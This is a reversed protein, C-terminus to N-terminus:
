GSHHLSFAHGIHVTPIAEHTGHAVAWRIDMRPGEVEVTALMNDFWPGDSISWTFPPAPVKARRSLFTALAVAPKKSTLSQGIRIWRPLPNRIPSCVAQLIASGGRGRDVEAVYSNHIDGSLFTVSSPAAGRKGDAVETVIKALGHFSKQFAAWHELDVGQRIKEGIGSARRGWAGDTVAENWAEFEHLGMPLLYPLTTGIFLHDVDGRMREDLWDTEAQDLMRRAGPELVRAARSDIVILRAGDLDRAYSWRYGDPHADVRQAFADLLDTIDDEGRERLELVHQWMEDQDRDERSLNGLHQYIWYSGLGGVIRGNWWGTANMENRWAQSTNWDDRIDHDDFMMASPLTALLWRNAPDGWALSYLHAYEEFDKLEVGPPEDLSRRSAIFDQMADSTEDAYVQDGLFLVFDPREQEDSCMMRLAFARLVDIGHTKNTEEDHPVSTRCSGFSFRLPRSPDRTRIRSAPVGEHEGTTLPWVPEDDVTITYSQSSGPQLGDVDVLAYHHGHASFTQASWAQDGIHVTVTSRAAVETWIVASTTDTHRLLPGIVLPSSPM